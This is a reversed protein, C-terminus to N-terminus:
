KTGEYIFSTEFYDSMNGAKDLSRIKFFYEEGIHTTDPFAVRITYTADNLFEDGTAVEDGNDFMEHFSSGQVMLQFEVTEIDQFSLSGQKDTVFAEFDYINEFNSVKVSDVVPKENEIRVNDVLEINSFTEFEDEAQFQVKYLSSNKMGAAYTPDLIIEFDDLVTSRSITDIKLINDTSDLLSLYLIQSDNDSNIDNDDDTVDAEITFTEFGSKLTDGSAIGTISEIIPESNLKVKIIKTITLLNTVNEYGDIVRISDKFIYDGEIPFDLSNIVGTWLKNHAIFDHSNSNIGGDDFFTIPVVTSDNLFLKTDMVLVDGLDLEVYNEDLKIKFVLQKDRGFAVKEPIITEDEVVNIYREVSEINCDEETCSNLSLLVFTTITTLLITIIKKNKFM